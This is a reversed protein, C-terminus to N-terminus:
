GKPEESIGPQVEGEDTPSAAAVGPQVEGESPKGKDGKPRTLFYAVVGLVLLGGAVPGILRAGTSGWGYGEKSAPLILASMLSTLAIAVANFCKIVLNYVGFYIATKDDGGQRACDTVAEGELGLLVAAMPGGLAFLVAMTMLPTGIIGQGLFATGLYVVALALSSLMCAKEWGLRRSFWPVIVFSVFSTALFAAMVSSNHAEPTYSVIVYEVIYVSGATLVTFSMQSGAFLFLTALFRRHGLALKVSEILGPGSQEKPEATKADKPRAFIPLIMLVAAPIAFVLTAQRYGWADIAFGSAVTGLATAALIGVGLLNSMQRRENEDGGYDDILSWYPIAYFTYGVFLLFMGAILLGWRLAISMELSPFFIMVLGLAPVLFWFWLLTQREKGKRVWSESLNGAIPDTVGDFIRFLLLVTAISTAAVLAKTEVGKVPSGAFKVIWTLFFRVLTMLGLQGCFYLFYRGVNM